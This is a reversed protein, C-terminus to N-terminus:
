YIRSLQTKFIVKKGPTYLRGKHRCMGSKGNKPEYDECQKGCYGDETCEDVARCWFFGDVKEPTAEFLEVETLKEDKANAMHHDATYCLEDEVSRFYFKPKM